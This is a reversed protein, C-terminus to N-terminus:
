LISVHNFHCLLKGFHQAQFDTLRIHSALYFTTFGCKSSIIIIIMGCPQM